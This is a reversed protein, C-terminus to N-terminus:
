NGKYAISDGKFGLVNWARLMPNGINAAGMYCTWFGDRWVGTYEPNQMYYPNMYVGSNDRLITQAQRGLTTHACGDYLAQKQIPSANSNEIWDNRLISQQVCANLVVLLLINKLFLKKMFKKYLEVM